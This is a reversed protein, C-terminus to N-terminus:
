LPLNVVDCAFCLYTMVHLASPVLDVGFVTALGYEPALAAALVSRSAAAVVCSYCKCITSIHHMSGRLAFCFSGRSVSLRRCLEVCLVSTQGLNDVNM